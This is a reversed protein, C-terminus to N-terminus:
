RRRLVAWSGWGAQSQVASWGDGLADIVAPTDLFLPGDQGLQNVWVLVGDKRLVRTVEGRRSM